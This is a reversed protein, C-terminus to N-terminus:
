QMRQALVLGYYNNHWLFTELVKFGCSNILTCLFDIDYKVSFGLGIHSGKHFTVRMKGYHGEVDKSFVWDYRVTFARGQLGYPHHHPINLEVSGDDEDVGVRMLPTMVFRKFQKNDYSKRIEKEIDDDNIDQPLLQADIMIFDGKEMMGGISQILSHEPYNGITNGLLAFLTPRNEPFVKPKTTLGATLDSLIGIASIRGEYDTLSGVYWSLSLGLMEISADVLYFNLDDQMALLRDLIAKEKQGSGVGLCVFDVQTVEDSYVSALMEPLRAELLGVSDWYPRYQLDSCLDKWATAENIGTFKFKESIYGKRVDEYFDSRLKTTAEYDVFIEFLKEQFPWKKKKFSIPTLTRKSDEFEPEVRIYVREAAKIIHSALQGSFFDNDTSYM